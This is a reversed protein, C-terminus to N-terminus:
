FQRDGRLTQALQAGMASLLPFPHPPLGPAAAASARRREDTVQPQPDSFAVFGFVFLFVVRFARAAEARDLGAEVLAALGVETGAFARPGMIPRRLRVEILSRHRALGARMARAIARLREQWGGEAPPLKHWATAEHVVADLLEEKTRFYGYLTMTGMELEAALRRMSLAGLGERDVLDLAARAIAERSRNASSAVTSM